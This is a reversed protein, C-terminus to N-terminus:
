RVDLAELARLVVRLHPVEHIRLLHAGGLAAFTAFFGEAKRFEEGFIDYTHPLVNCVPVGLPRLRFTQTLVRTQHRARAYPDLLNGYHFGMGLDIIVKDAGLARARELRAGFHDLLVPMPDADAPVDTPERVNAADGFCMVVAADHEAALTLMEDEHQRGTMNLVLAGAALCARVVSPEYTEVSVITHAALGEVAPVLQQIQTQADVRSARANSSEAGLDIMSAGQAVQIRGMRVADEPSVAVSERYTSDRSLNVCGMLTVEGDGVVVDGAPGSLTVPTVDSQWADAYQHHLAALDALTIM